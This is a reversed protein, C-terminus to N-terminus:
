FGVISYNVASNIRSSSTTSNLAIAHILVRGPEWNQDIVYVYTPTSSLVVASHIGDYAGNTFTAIVNGRVPLNYISVRGGIANWKSTQKGALNTTAKIFGACQYGYSIESQPTLGIYSINSNPISYQLTTGFKSFQLNSNYYLFRWAPNGAMTTQQLNTSNGVVTNLATNFASTMSALTANAVSLNFFLMCSLVLNLLIKNV